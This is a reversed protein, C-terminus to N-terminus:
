DKERYFCCGGIFERLISNVPVEDEVNASIFYDLFALLRQAKTYHPSDPKVDSLLPAAYNKLIAMEYMLSSNFMADAHEQFCFINREEGRVVSPWMDFTREISSARFKYDRVLRRILRADTTRIRNHDDLNLQTLASIYVRFKSSNPIDPTLADNLGHIGEIIIPQASDIRTDLQGPVSKGSLFDFHPLRVVQGQLLCILQENFLPVDLADLAELDVVGDPGPLIEDRSRYYDDLSILLPKLGMTRLEIAMRHTFTTKGSSSPGAILMIRAGSEVFRDAIDSISKTQLAENVRIFERLSRDMVMRNLDAVNSCGLIDSWRATEALVRTLKPREIFPAPRSLDDKDPLMLLMGPMLFHLAFIRVHGTSPLMAGYFYERLGGCEYLRFTQDSHYRLLEAKDDWGCSRFYDLAEQRTVDAYEFPLDREILERMRAQIRRVALTSLLVDSELTVYVGGGMSNEFRVRKGPYMQHIALMFVFRLSREYVRRGEEDTLDLTTARVGPQAREGLGVVGGPTLMAVAAPVREPHSIRIADLYTIDGSDIEIRRGDIELSYM